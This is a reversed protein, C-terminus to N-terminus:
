RSNSSVIMTKSKMATKITFEVICNNGKIAIGNENIFDGRDIREQNKTRGTTTGSDLKMDLRNIKVILEIIVLDFM